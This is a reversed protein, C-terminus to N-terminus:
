QGCYKRRGDSCGWARPCWQSAKKKLQSSIKQQLFEDVGVFDFISGINSQSTQLNVRPLKQRTLLRPSLLIRLAIFCCFLINAVVLLNKGDVFWILPSCDSLLDFYQLLTLLNCTVLVGILITNQYLLFQKSRICM